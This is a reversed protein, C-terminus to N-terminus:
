RSGPLKTAAADATRGKAAVTGEKAPILWGKAPVTSERAAVTWERAPIM